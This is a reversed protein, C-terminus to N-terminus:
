YGEFYLKIYKQFADYNYIKEDLLTAEQEGIHTYGILHMKKPDKKIQANMGREYHIAESSGSVTMNGTWDEAYFNYIRDKLIEIGYSKASMGGTIQIQSGDRFTLDGDELVCGLCLVCM